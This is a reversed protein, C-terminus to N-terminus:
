RALRSDERRAPYARSPKDTIMWGAAVPWWRNLPGFLAVRKEIAGPAVGIETM